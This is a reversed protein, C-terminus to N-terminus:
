RHRNWDLALPALAFRALPTFTAIGLLVIPWSVPLGEAPALLAVLGATCAVLVVWGILIACLAAPTILGRALDARFAWTSVVAKVAAASVVLWPLVVLFRQRDEPHGVLWFWGGPLALLLACQIVAALNAVWARGTLGPVVGDTAM